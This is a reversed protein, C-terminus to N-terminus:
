FCYRCILIVLLCFVFTAWTTCKLDYPFPITIAYCFASVALFIGLGEFVQATIPFKSRICRAVFIAAFTFLILLSLFHFNSGHDTSQVSQLAIDTASEMCFGIMVIIWDIQNQDVRDQRVGPAAQPPQLPPQPNQEEAPMVVTTGIMQYEKDLLESSSSTTPPPPPPPQQPWVSTRLLRRFITYSIQFMKNLNMSQLAKSRISMKM